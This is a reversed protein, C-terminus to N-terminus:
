QCGHDSAHDVVTLMRPEGVPVPMPSVGAAQCGIEGRTPSNGARNEREEPYWYLNVAANEDRDMVNGCDCRMVRQKLPMAHRQHCRCCLKTSPYWRDAKTLKRGRWDAKYAIQHLLTGIGADAVSKGLRLGRSMARVNLTEVVLADAKAILRHSLNHLFDARVQRVKRHIATVRRVAVRRRASGRQRRSVRRQARRLRKAAKRLPRPPTVHGFTEGDFTTVLSSLGADVSLRLGTPSFPEPRECEFQASLMWRDGDRVIRASLLRGQPTDGGRLKVRGLKPLRATREAITTTQGVCYIGSENVFKKKPRPFGCQRGAARERVMRRLAGDMRTVTDLVAHAPLDALWELGAQRKMGVAILQLERKWLFKGTAAYEAREADLLRNWLFRLSGTWQNLRSGQDTSPYLRAQWGRIITAESM